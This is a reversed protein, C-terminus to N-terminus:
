ASSAAKKSRPLRKAESARMCARCRRRGSPEFTTNEPTFEHGHACHTSDRSASPRGAETLAREADWGQAIRYRLSARTVRCRPDRSWAEARKTEGFATMLVPVASKCPETPSTMAREADWGKTIRNAFVGPTTVCRPDRGWESVPKTEGFITLPPRNDRRNLSQAGRTIWRCNGPEYGLDNDERDITLDSAYGNALAWKMFAGYDTLWEDCVTIGRGGYRPYAEHARSYCRSHMARWINHLRSKSDYDLPYRRKTRRNFEAVSERHAATRVYNGRVGDTRLAQDAM